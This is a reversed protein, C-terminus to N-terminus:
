EGSSLVEDAVAATITTLVGNKWTSCNHIASLSRSDPWNSVVMAENRGRRMPLWWAMHLPFFSGRSGRGRLGALPTVYVDCLAHGTQHFVGLFYFKTLRWKSLTHGMSVIVHISVPACSPLDTKLTYRAQADNGISFIRAKMKLDNDNLRKIKYIIHSSLINAERTM